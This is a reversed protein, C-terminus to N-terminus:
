FERKSTEVKKLAEIANEANCAICYQAPLKEHKAYYDGGGTGYQQWFFTFGLKKLEAANQRENNNMARKATTM